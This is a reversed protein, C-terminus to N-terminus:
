RGIVYQDALNVIIAIQHEILEFFYDWLLDQASPHGVIGPSPPELRGPRIDEFPILFKTQEAEGGDISTAILVDGEQGDV